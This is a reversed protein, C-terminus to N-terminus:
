LNPYLTIFLYKGSEIKELWITVIAKKRLHGEIKYLNGYVSERSLIADNHTAIFLIEDILESYNKISFGLKLLFESKDNQQKYVLLYNVVKDKAIIINEAEIKM